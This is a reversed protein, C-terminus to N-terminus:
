LLLVKVVRDVKFVVIQNHTPVVVAVVQTQQVQTGMQALKVQLDEVVQVVKDKLLPLNVKMKDVVVVQTHVARAM